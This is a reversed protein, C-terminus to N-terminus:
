NEDDSFVGEEDDSLEGFDEDFEDEDDEDDDDEDEDDDDEDFEDDDDEDDLDDDEDDLDDLDDFDDEDALADLELAGVIESAQELRCEPVLVPVGGAMVPEIPGIEPELIAPIDHAELDDRLHESEELRAPIAVPVFNSAELDTTGLKGSYVGALKLDKGTRM